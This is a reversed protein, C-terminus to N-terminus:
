EMTYISGLARMLFIPVYRDLFSTKLSSAAFSKLGPKCRISIEERIQWVRRM